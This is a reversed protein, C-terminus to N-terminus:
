RFLANVGSGSRTIQNDGGNCDDNKPNGDMSIDPDYGIMLKYNPPFEGESPSSANWNRYYSISVEQGPTLNQFNRKAVLKSGEYLYMGQQNPSSEYNALGANKVVGTIWVRGRFQSTKRVIQFNISHAAPNPCKIPKVIIPVKIRPTQLKDVPRILTEASAPLITASLLTTAAILTTLLQSKM